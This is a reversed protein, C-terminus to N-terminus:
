IEQNFVVKCRHTTRSLMTFELKDLAFRATDGTEIWDITTDITTDDALVTGDSGIENECTVLGAAADIATILMARTSGDKHKILVYRGIKTEIPMSSVFTFQVLSEVITMEDFIFDGNFSDPLLFEKQMGLHRVFFQELNKANNDFLILNVSTMVDTTKYTKSTSFVGVGSDVRVMKGNLNITVGKRGEADFSWLEMGYGAIQGATAAEFPERGPLFDVSVSAAAIDRSMANVTFGDTMIGIGATTIIAGSEVAIEDGNLDSFPNSITIADGNDTSITSASMIGNANLVIRRGLPLLPRGNNLTNYGYTGAIGGGVELIQQFDPYIAYDSAAKKIVETTAADDSFLMTSYKVSRRPTQRYGWQQGGGADFRARETKMEFSLTPADIFNPRVPFCPINNGIIRSFSQGNELEIVVTQPGPYDEIVVVDIVSPVGDTHINPIFNSSSSELRLGTQVVVSSVRQLENLTFHIAIRADQLLEGRESKTDYWIIDTM